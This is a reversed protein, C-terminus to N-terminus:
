TAQISIGYTQIGSLAHINTRTLDDDDDDDYRM